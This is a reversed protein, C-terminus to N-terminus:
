IADFPEALSIVGHEACSYAVALGSANGVAELDLGRGCEPCPPGSWEICDDSM